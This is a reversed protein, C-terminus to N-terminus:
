SPKLCSWPVSWLPLRRVRMPSRPNRLRYIPLSCSGSSSSTWPSAPLMRFRSSRRCPVSSSRRLRAARTSGVARRACRTRTPPMPELPAAPLGLSVPAIPELPVEPVGPLPAAATMPALPLPLPSARSAPVSVCRTIRAAGARRAKAVLVSTKRRWEGRRSVDSGARRGPREQARRWRLRPVGECRPDRVKM